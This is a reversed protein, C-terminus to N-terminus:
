PNKIVRRPRGDAGAPPPQAAPTKTAPASSSKLTPVSTSPQRTQMPQPYPMIVQKVNSNSAPAATTTAADTKMADTAAPNAPDSAAEEDDDTDAVKSPDIKPKPALMDPTLALPLRDGHKGFRYNLTRYIQGAIAAPVHSHADTGRGVVAIALQPDEVPAYSAFLGVWVRDSDICTGTKGAITEAPDYAKHGSGYNVSGIMGPLMRRLSEQPINLQRRVETKFKLDEEPTRPLHPTLLTGGNAFVSALAALQVPTVEIDDGHSSMRLMGVDSKFLPWKGPNEGMHNIGTREGLGLQRAYSSMRDFGVKQGVQQFYSNISYALADTLNMRSNYSANEAVPDIVGEAVGALGSVLKITSCPKFGRRVGWQQNVITYIRGTKPNMVVVSAAHNGLANIAVRRVEADEGTADDKAINAQVENRLGEDIARQRAIAALRALEARHAAERRRREEAAIRALERRSVKGGRGGRTAKAEEGRSARREARTQKASSKGARASKERGRSARASKASKAPAAKKGGHSKAATSTAFAVLLFLTVIVPLYPSRPTRTM